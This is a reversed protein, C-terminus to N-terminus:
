LVQGDEPTANKLKPVTQLYAWIARVESDTMTSYKPMPYALPGHPSLGFRLAQAFQGADWDGLGTAGDMTLNRSLVIQQQRNLLRNGGGLYGPSHEPVLEDNTKFDASHCAFCKYRGAVLYRGLAVSDTPAPVLVPQTPIPMPKMVTNTLAKALFSPEQAHSPAATPQTLPHESRLFAIIAALDEDALQPFPPMVIRYRGDPGIGTRLLAAVQGDTWHGIGHAEDRTINAAYIHGFEPPLDAVLQGSLTGTQPNRHCDVCSARVLKEGLALREPTPAARFDAAVVPLTYSPIGRVAVFGAFGAVALLLLGVVLGVPRLFKM